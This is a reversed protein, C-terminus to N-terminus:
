LPAGRRKYFLSATRLSQASLRYPKVCLCRGKEFIKRATSSFLFDLFLFYFSIKLIFIIVLIQKIGLFNMSLKFQDM